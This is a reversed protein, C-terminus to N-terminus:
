GKKTEELERKADGAYPSLPFEDVIRTFARAAEDKRGARVCTRGLQMLVGDPPMASKSDASMERYITIANDFKGQASQAEAVGLRATRSYIKSGGKDVVEQFRQEAEPYRGLAALAAGAYYRAAIGADTGPYKDAAEMLKPLAAEFKAQETAFTGAQQVPLPSGPAPAAATMVPAEYLALGAALATNAKAARSQRWVSYGGVVVAIAAVAIVVRTIDSRRTDILERARAVSHAFENEKLRHRETSKM